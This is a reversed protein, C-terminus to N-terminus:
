FLLLKSVFFSAKEESLVEKKSKVFQRSRDLQDFRMVMRDFLLAIMFFLYEDNKVEANKM